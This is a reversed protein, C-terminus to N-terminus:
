LPPPLHAAVRVSVSYSPAAHRSSLTGTKCRAVPASCGAATPKRGTRTPRFARLKFTAHRLRPRVTVAAKPRVTAARVFVCACLCARVGACSRLFALVSSCAGLRERRAGPAAAAASVAGAGHWHGLARGPEYLFETIRNRSPICDVALHSHTCHTQSQVVNADFGLGGALGSFAPGLRTCKRAKASFIPQQGDFGGRSEM